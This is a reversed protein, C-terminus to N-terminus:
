NLVKTIANLQALTSVTAAPRDIKPPEPANHLVAAAPQAKTAEAPDAPPVPEDLEM